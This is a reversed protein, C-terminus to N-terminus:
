QLIFYRRLLMFGLVLWAVIFLLGGIPTIAGLAKVGSVALIYLSGCFIVVGAFLLWCILSAVSESLADARLFLPVILLGLAHIFHYFVAREYVGISYADLRARLAHAGFAGLAVALALLIAGVGSWAMLLLQLQFLNSPDADAEEPM